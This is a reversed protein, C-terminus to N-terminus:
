IIRVVFVWDALSYTVTEIDAGLSAEGVEVSGEGCANAGDDEEVMFLTKAGAEPDKCVGEINVFLSHTIGGRGFGPLFGAASVGGVM